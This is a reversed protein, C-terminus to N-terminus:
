NQAFFLVSRSLSACFSKEATAVGESKQDRLSPQVYLYQVLQLISCFTRNLLPIGTCLEIEADHHLFLTDRLVICALMLITWFHPQDPLEHETHRIIIIAM